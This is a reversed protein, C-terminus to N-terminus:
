SVVLKELKEVVLKGGPKCKNIDLPSESIHIAYAECSSFGCAKCNFGPLVNVINGVTENLNENQVKIDKVFKETLYGLLFIAPITLIYRILTFKLGLFKSEVFFMPIKVVAWASIIIVINSISAGKKLLSLSLPFAAYIPGASIAGVIISFVKGKIGSNKGIIKKITEDPVWNTLLASIIFVAPMIKIMEILYFKSNNIGKFFVDNKLFYTFIYAIIVVVIIRNKKIKEIIM